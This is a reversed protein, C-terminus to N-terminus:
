GHHPCPAVIVAEERSKAIVWERFAHVYRFGKPSGPEVLILVGGDKVRSWLADLIMLRAKQSKVEQLVLGLIVLDFKGREAGQGPVVALSDTWLLKEDFDESLFKGLKRMNTNPEVMAAKELNKGFCHHAAWVGSGLGAGYDLVSIERDQFEPLRNIVELILRKYVM